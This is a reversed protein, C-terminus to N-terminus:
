KGYDKIEIGGTSSAIIVHTVMSRLFLGTEVVGPIAHLATNILYPDDIPYLNLDAIYNGNDTIVRKGDRERISVPGYKELLTNVTLEAAFPLIEVPLPYKGLHEVVKSEDVVVLYTKTHFAVIKERLLAGGGGKILNGQQDVEDAGDITVDIASIEAFPVIPINRERALAESQESTAVAKVSLGEKIRAGIKEIAWFATSGTGLGVVMGDNIYEVAKEAALKKAEM